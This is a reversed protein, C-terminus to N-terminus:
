RQLLATDRADATDSVGHARRLTEILEERWARASAMARTFASSGHIHGEGLSLNVPVGAQALRQAYAAGDDRLPDYESIMIHAPPLGSLDAALLPSAYPESAQEPRTLYARCYRQMESLTLGYGQTLEPRSMTGFSLDLAPVELLQFALPPGGEDRLRLTLAAALNGGASSGGITILEPNIGLLEAHEVVWLLAAHCDNLATPYPHEPAKRYEVAVVVCQAGACRERCTAENFAGHITGVVWGGGHLFLHAPHPGPQLPQYVYIEIDAGDVPVTFHQRERVAPGAEALTPFLLDGQQNTAARWAAYDAPETSPPTQQLLPELFPDLPM